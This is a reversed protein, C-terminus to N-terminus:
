HSILWILFLTVLKWTHTHTNTKWLLLFFDIEYYSFFFYISCSYKFQFKSYLLFFIHLVCVGKLINKPKVMHNSFFILLCCHSCFMILHNGILEPSIGGFGNISFMSMLNVNKEIKIEIYYHCSSLFFSNSPMCVCVSMLCKTINWNNSNIIEMTLYVVQIRYFVDHKLMHYVLVPKYPRHKRIDIEMQRHRYLIKQSLFFIFIRMFLPNNVIMMLM